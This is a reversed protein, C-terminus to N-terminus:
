LCLVVAVAFFYGAALTLVLLLVRRGRLSDM